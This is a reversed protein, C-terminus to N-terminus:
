APQERRPRAVQGTKASEYIADMLESQAIGHDPNTRPTAKGQVCAIFHDDPTQKEGKLPLPDVPGEATYAAIWAANWGDVDIKGKEFLFTMHTGYVPCNGGIGIAAMVGNEFRVNIASNIDVPTERNDIFAYVSDLNSEVSWVLSNLLHAGSDYAQGGGSLAPDQRWKGATGKMWNQSIHAVILELRGFTGKRISERIFDFEPSCPTNYGIFVIRGAREAEEKLAYAQEASTVMPKELFVHCGHALAESAHEYHLTHPTCIFVADPKAEKYMTARDVFRRPQPDLTGLHTQCYKGTIDDSVDCLAVIEVDDRAVLRKAHVGAFGGCGLIAVRVAPSPSPM